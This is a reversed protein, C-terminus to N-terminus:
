VQPQLPPPLQLVKSDDDADLDVKKRRPKIKLPARMKLSTLQSHFSTKFDIMDQQMQLMEAMLAEQGSKVEMLTKENKEMLKLGECTRSIHPDHATIEGNMYRNFESEPLNLSEHTLSKIFAVACCLNTFYYGAEGTMLRTPNTFRTIFQINSELLPPNAKLVIYILAPLFEDASAPENKSFKLAEFIHKSCKVVCELKDQPCRKANMEIIATIASEVHERVGDISENLVVDLLHVSIWHLSRIRAQLKLDLQEDDTVSPSFLHSYLRTLVYRECLNLLEEAEEAKYLHKSTMNDNMLQYFTSLMESLEDVPSNGLSMQYLKEIVGKVQKPINIMIEKMDLSRLYDVLEKGVKQSEESSQRTTTSRPKSQQHRHSHSQQDHYKPSSYSFILLLLLKSLSKGFISPIIKSKRLLSHQQQTSSPQQQQQQQLTTKPDFKLSIKDDKNHKLEKWCKSCYGQWAPNGYFGCGKKCLLDTEEIKLNSM